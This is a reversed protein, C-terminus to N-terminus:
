QVSVVGLMGAEMHGPVLCAFDVQGAQSFQWVIGGMQGPKLTVMNPEAHNMGPMKQMKAAHAKLDAMSGIVMEHGVKGENKLFFRITEGAKVQIHSPTFRMSDDMSMAITRSVKSADGPVGVAAPSAHDAPAMHAMNAMGQPMNPMHHGGAHDCGAQAFFPVSALAIALLQKKM